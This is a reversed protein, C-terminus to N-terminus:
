GLKCRTQSLVCKTFQKDAAAGMVLETIQHQSILMVIGEVIDDMEIVLKEARVQLLSRM